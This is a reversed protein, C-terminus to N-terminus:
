RKKRAARFWLSIVKAKGARGISGPMDVIAIGCEDVKAAEGKLERLAVYDCDKRLETLGDEELERAVAVGALAPAEAPELVLVLAARVQGHVIEATCRYTATHHTHVMRAILGPVVLVQFLPFNPPGVYLPPFLLCSSTTRLICILRNSLALRIFLIAPSVPRHQHLLFLQLQQQVLM